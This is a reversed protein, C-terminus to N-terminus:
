PGKNAKILRRLTTLITFVLLYYCFFMGRENQFKQQHHHHCSYRTTAETCMSDLQCHLNLVFFFSCLFLYRASLVRTELKNSRMYFYAACRHFPTTVDLHVYFFNITTGFFIDCSKAHLLLCCEIDVEVAVVVVLPM